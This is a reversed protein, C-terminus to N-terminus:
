SDGGRAASSSGCPGHHCRRICPTQSCLPTQSTVRPAELPGKEGPSLDISGVSVETGGTVMKVSKFNWHLSHTNNVSLAPGGRSQYVTHCSRHNTVIYIDSTLYLSPSFTNHYSTCVWSVNTLVLYSFKVQFLSLNQM